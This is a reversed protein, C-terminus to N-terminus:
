RRMENRGADVLDTVRQADREISAVLAGHQDQFWLVQHAMSHVQAAFERSADDREALPSVVACASELIQTIRGFGTRLVEAMERLQEANKVYASNPVYSM